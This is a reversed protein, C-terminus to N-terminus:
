KLVRAHLVVWNWNEFLENNAFEVSRIKKYSEPAKKILEIVENKINSSLEPAENMWHTISEKVVIFSKKEIQFGFNLLMNELDEATYFKLLQAQKFRHIKELYNKDGTSFPVTQSLIFTGRAKLIRKIETIVNQPDFLFLSQRMVAFDFEDGEFPLPNEVDHKITRFYKNAEEVMEQTVDIGVVDHGARVFARGIAGTGCCLDIGRANKQKLNEVHANILDQNLIWNASTNFTSARIGFQKQVPAREM